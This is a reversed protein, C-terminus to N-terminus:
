QNSQAPKENEAQRNWDPTPEELLNRVFFDM